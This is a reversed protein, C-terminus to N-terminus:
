AETTKSIEPPSAELEQRLKKKIQQIKWALTRYPLTSKESLRACSGERIYSEFLKRDYWELKSLANNVDAIAKDIAHDYDSPKDPYNELFIEFRWRKHRYKRFFPSKRSTWMKKLTGLIFAKLEGKKELAILKREKSHLLLFILEQYLDRWLQHTAINYCAGKYFPDSLVSQIIQKKTMTQIM